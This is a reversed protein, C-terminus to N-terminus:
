SQAVVLSKKRKKKRKKKHQWVLESLKTLKTDKTKILQHLKALQNQKEEMGSDKHQILEKTALL